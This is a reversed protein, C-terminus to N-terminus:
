FNGYPPEKEQPGTSCSLPPIFNDMECVKLVSVVPVFGQPLLCPFVGGAGLITIIAINRRGSAKNPKKSHESINM